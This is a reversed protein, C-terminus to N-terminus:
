PLYTFTSHRVMEKVQGLTDGLDGVILEVGTRSLELRDRVANKRNYREHCGVVVLAEPHQEKHKLTQALDYLANAGYPNDFHIGCNAQVRGTQRAFWFMVVGHEQAQRLHYDGWGLKTKFDKHLEVREDFDNIAVPLPNWRSRLVDKTDDIWREAGRFTGSVFILPEKERLRDSPGIIKGM